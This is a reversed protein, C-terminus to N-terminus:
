SPRSTSRGPRGSIVSAAPLDDRRRGGHHHPPSGNLLRQGREQDLHLRGVTWAREPHPLLHRRRARDVRPPRAPDRQRRHRRVPLAPRADDSGLGFRNVGTVAANDVEVVYLGGAALTTSAPIAYAHSDDSDSLIMGSIDISVAATNKLEVFDQGGSVSSDVENLVVWSADPAFASSFDNATGFTPLRTEVFSSGDWGLSTRGHQTWTRTSVPSAASLDTTDATFLRASDADGLGFDGPAARTTSASPPSRM